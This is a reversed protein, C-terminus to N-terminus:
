MERECLALHKKICLKHVGRNCTTCVTASRRRQRTRDSCVVCDRKKGNACRRLNLFDQRQHDTVNTGGALSLSEIVSELFELRTKIREDNTNRTYLIYANIVIRQWMNFMIKKWLKICKRSDSYFGAMMDNLDGGGMFKQYHIALTPKGDTRNKTDHFTSILRM